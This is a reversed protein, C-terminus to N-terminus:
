ENIAEGWGCNECVRIKHPSMGAGGFKHHSSSVDKYSHSGCKKCTFEYEYKDEDVKHLKAM